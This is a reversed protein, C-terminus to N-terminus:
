LNNYLKRLLATQRSDLPQNNLVAKAIDKMDRPSIVSMPSKEVKTQQPRAPAAGPKGSWGKAFGKFFGETAFERIKM